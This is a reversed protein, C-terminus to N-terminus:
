LLKLGTFLVIYCHIVSDVLSKHALHTGPGTPTSRNLSDVASRFVRSRNLSQDRKQVPSTRM